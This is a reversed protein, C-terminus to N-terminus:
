GRNTVCLVAEKELDLLKKKARVGFVYGGIKNDTKVVRHCPIILPYPNAALANAVARWAGPSGAKRAVWKYTHTQGLPIGLVVRYVKVAFPTM